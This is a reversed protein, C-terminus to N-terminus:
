YGITGRGLALELGRVAHAADGVVDLYLQEDKARLAGLEGFVKAKELDNVTAVLNQAAGEILHLQAEDPTFFGMAQLKSVTELWHGLVKMRQVLLRVRHQRHQQIAADVIDLEIPMRYMALGVQEEIVARARPGGYGRAVAYSAGQLLHAGGCTYSFLAQGKREFREKRTMHGTLFASEKQLVAVTFTAVDELAMETGDAATWRLDPPAWAALAQLAWPLDNPGDFSAHNTAPVLHTKLVTWRYLDALPIPTPAAGPSMSVSMTDDPSYGAETLNKLILDTHPEIRIAGRSAPFGVGTFPGATRPEAFTAFVHPVAERGDTLRFETGRALVGHAIAWPNDPDAGHSEVVKGLTSLAADYAPNPPIARAVAANRAPAVPVLERIDAATWVRPGAVATPAPPPAPPAIPEPEGGCGFLAVAALLFPGIM